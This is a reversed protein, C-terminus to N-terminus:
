HPPPFPPGGRLVYDDMRKKDEDDWYSRRTGEKLNESPKHIHLTELCIEPQEKVFDFIERWTGTRLHPYFLGFNKLTASHRAWFHMLEGGNMSGNGGNFYFTELDKWVYNDGFMKAIPLVPTLLEVYLHEEWDLGLSLTKLKPASSVFDFLRGGIDDEWLSDFDESNGTTCFYVKLSTLNQFLPTFNWLTKDEDVLIGRWISNITLKELRTQAQSAGALLEYFAEVWSLAKDFDISETIFFNRHDRLICTEPWAQWDYTYSYEFKKEDFNTTIERINPMNSLAYKVIDFVEQPVADQSKRQEYIKEGSGLIRSIARLRYPYILHQVCRAAHPQHSLYGLAEITAGTFPVHITRFYLDNAAITFFRNVLRVSGLDRESVYSLIEHIIETPVTDM